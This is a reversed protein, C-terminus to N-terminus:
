LYTYQTYIYIYYESYRSGYRITWYYEMRRPETTIKGTLCASIHVCPFLVIYIYIYIRVPRWQDRLLLLFPVCSRSASVDYKSVTATHLYIRVQVDFIYVQLIFLFLIYYLYTHIYIHYINPYIRGGYYRDSRAMASIISRHYQSTLPLWHNVTGEITREDFLVHTYVMYLLFICMDRVCLYINYYKRVQIYIHTHIHITYVLSNKFAALFSMKICYQQQIYVTKRRVKRFIQNQKLFRDFRDRYLQHQM